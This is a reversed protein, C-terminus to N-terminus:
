VTKTGRIKKWTKKYEGIGWDVMDEYEEYYVYSTNDMVSTGSFFGISILDINYQAFFLSTFLM